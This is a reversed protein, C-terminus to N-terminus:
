GALQRRAPSDNRHRANRPDGLGERPHFELRGSGRGPSAGGRVEGGRVEFRGGRRCGPDGRGARAGPAGVPPPAGDSPPEAAASDSGPDPIDSSGCGAVMVLAGAVGLRVLWTKWPMMPGGEKRFANESLFARATRRDRGPSPGARGGQIWGDLGQNHRRERSSQFLTLRRDAWRPSLRDESWRWCGGM